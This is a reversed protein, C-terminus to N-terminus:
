YSRQQRLRNIREMSNLPLDEVVPPAKSIKSKRLQYVMFLFLAIYLVLEIVESYQEVVFYYKKPPKYLNAQLKWLFVIVFYPLFTYHPVLMSAWERYRAFARSRMIILPLLTGCAGIMVVIWKFVLRIGEMNHLNTEGQKNIARISESTQWGFIRQGWSIEEGILFFIGLGLAFYLLAIFRYGAKWIRRMVVFCLVLALALFLVQLNEAVRDEDTFWKYAEKGMLATVVGTLCVLIPVVFSIFVTMGTSLNWDHAGEALLNKLSWSSTEASASEGDIATSFSAQKM